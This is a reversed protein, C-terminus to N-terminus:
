CNCLDPYGNDCWHQADEGTIKCTYLEAENPPIWKFNSLLATGGGINTGCKTLVIGLPLFLLMSM